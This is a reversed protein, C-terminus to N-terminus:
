RKALSKSRMRKNKPNLIIYPASRLHHDTWSPKSYVVSVIFIQDTTSPILWEPIQQCTPISLLHPWFSSLTSWDYLQWVLHYVYNHGHTLDNLFHQYSHRSLASLLLAPVNSWNQVPVHYHVKIKSNSWIM